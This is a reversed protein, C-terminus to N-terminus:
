SVDQEEADGFEFRKTVGCWGCRSCSWLYLVRRAGDRPTDTSRSGIGGSYTDTGDGLPKRTQCVRAAM